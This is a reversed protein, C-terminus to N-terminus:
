LTEIAQQLLKEFQSSYKISEIEKKTFDLSKMLKLQENTIQKEIKLMDKYATEKYGNIVMIEKAKKIAETKTLDKKYVYGTFKDIIDYRM